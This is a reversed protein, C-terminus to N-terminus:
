GKAESWRRVVGVEAIFRVEPEPSWHFAAEALADTVQDAVMEAAEAPTHVLLEDHLCLVIEARGITPEADVLRRRVIVAWMKFLEAASGQIVANRAYRGRAAAAAVARDLNGDPSSASGTRVRRGGLTFVNEGRRGQEAADELFAMATPYNQQLGRLAGASQGTTAGYMAGLVAVKAVERDVGLRDAVPQYLDDSTTAATLAPDGSMAALVRPEVQGLDARVFAHGSEASVAPRMPAPLNHLGASATMRGAAGDSGSWQGRLRGGSVHEDLWGYGYTTAIREAKRWDLLADILPHEDRLKEMRWARTDPLDIGAAALMAKVDNPNRLNVPRAPDLHQLVLADRRAQNAAEDASSTPRPGASQTIIRAAEEVDIPLGNIALEACLLEAASEAHATSIARSTAQGRAPGEVRGARDDALQARQMTAAQLALGAWRALRDPGQRWGGAVWDPRLHGDPRVPGAPDTDVVDTDAPNTFDLQGLQPATTPDLDHLWAWVLEVEASWRGALLRHVAAVDWCREIHVGAEALSRATTQDWWVFRPRHARDLQAVVELPREIVAARGAETALGVGGTPDVAIALLEGSAIDLAELESDPGAPPGNPTPEAM